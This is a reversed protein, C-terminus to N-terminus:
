RKVIRWSSLPYPINRKPKQPLYLVLIKTGIEQRTQFTGRGRVLADDQTRFEYKLDVFNGRRGSVMCKTVMGFTAVGEAAVRREFKMRPLIFLSFGLGAVLVVVFYLELESM